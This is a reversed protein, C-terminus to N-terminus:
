PHSRQWESLYNEYRESHRGLYSMGLRDALQQPSLPTPDSAAGQAPAPGPAEPVAVDGETSAPPSGAEAARAEPLEKPFAFLVVPLGVAKAAAKLKLVSSSSGKAAIGTATLEPVVLELRAVFVGRDVPMMGKSPQSEAWRSASLFDASWALLASKDAFVVHVIDGYRMLKAGAMASRYLSINM